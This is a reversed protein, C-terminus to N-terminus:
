RSEAPWTLLQVFRKGSSTLVPNDASGGVIGRTVHSYALDSPRAWALRPQTVVQSYPEASIPTGYQSFAITWAPPNGSAASGALWPYDELLTLNPSNPIHVKFFPEQTRIYDILNFHPYQHSLKLIEEPNLGALNMGNHIEHVNPQTPFRDRYWGNFNRSLMMAIEFHVHARRRNIGAGTYGLRGIPAGRAVRQGPKVDVSGLHAYLTYFPSGQIRHEVVVYRGYNSAGPDASAHVVTGGASANVMDLPEGNADRRVPKIDIGEHHRRYITKGGALTPGRTYGYQGGTWPRSTKGQFHRDVYMYFDEPNGDILARNETPFDFLQGSANDTSITAVAIVCALLAGAAARTRPTKRRKRTEKHRSERTM